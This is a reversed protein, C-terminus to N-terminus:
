RSPVRDVEELVSRLRVLGRRIHSKVTGLPLGMREAIQEHTLDHVFALRLVSGRPEGLRDLEHALLLREAVQQQLDPKAPTESSVASANRIARYRETRLDTVCNRTIGVLWAPLATPSPRLTQRGRWAAVFVRQTVDEADHHNSLSRLAITYVLGSWRRYTEALADHSGDVLAQAVAEVTASEGDSGAMRAVTVVEGTTLTM